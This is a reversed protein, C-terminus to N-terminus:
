EQRFQGHNAVITIRSAKFANTVSIYLRTKDKLTCPVPLDDIAMLVVKQLVDVKRPRYMKTAM